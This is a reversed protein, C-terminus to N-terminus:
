NATIYLQDVLIFTLLMTTFTTLLMVVCVFGGIELISSLINLIKYYTKSWYM